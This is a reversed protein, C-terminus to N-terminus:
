RTCQRKFAILGIPGPLNKSAQTGPLPTKEGGKFLSKKSYFRMSKPGSIFNPRIRAQNQLKNCIKLEIKAFKTNKPQPHAFFM